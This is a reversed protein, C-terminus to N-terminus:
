RARASNSTLVVLVLTGLGVPIQDSGLGSLVHVVLCWFVWKVLYLRMEGFCNPLQLLPVPLQLRVVFYCLEHDGGEVKFM